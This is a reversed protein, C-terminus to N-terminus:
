SYKEILESYEGSDYWDKIQKFRLISWPHTAQATYSVYLMKGIIDSTEIDFDEAQKLVENVDFNIDRIKDSRGLMNMNENLVAGIDGAAILGARDASYEAKRHWDMIAYQLGIAAATAIGGMSGLIGNISNALNYYVLHGCKIHGLEHGLLNLMESDSYNAVTSSHIYIFPDDAGVAAANYDFDLKCYLPYEKPMDLRELALKYLGYIRPNTKETIRVCNGLTNMRIFLQNSKNEIFSMAKDFAKRSIIQSIKKNRFVPNQDEFYAHTSEPVLLAIERPALTDLAELAKLLKGVFANEQKYFDDAAASSRATGAVYDWFRNTELQYSLAEDRAHFCCSLTQQFVEHCLLVAKVLNRFAGRESADGEVAMNIHWARGEM